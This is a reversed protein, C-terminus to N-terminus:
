GCVWRWACRRQAELLQLNTCALGGDEHADPHLHVQLLM